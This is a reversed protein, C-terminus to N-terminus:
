PNFTEEIQNDIEEDREDKTYEEISEISGHRISLKLYTKNGWLDLAEVYYQSSGM